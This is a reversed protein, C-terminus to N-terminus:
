KDEQRLPTLSAQHSVSAGDRVDDHTDAVALVFKTYAAPIFTALRGEMEDGSPEPASRSSGRQNENHRTYM